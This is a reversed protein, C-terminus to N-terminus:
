PGPEIRDWPMIVSLATMAIRGSFCHDVDSGSRRPRDAYRGAYRAEGSEIGYSVALPSPDNPCEVFPPETEGDDLHPFNVNWFSGVPLPQSRARDLTRVAQRAAWDWDITKGSAIYHSLAIAPLGWIAAERAAAVTGSIHIDVGLNGGPNIGSLVWADRLDLVHVAVRICDAPSGHIAFRRPGREEIRIPAHTTVQHGCGSCQAAPAIVWIEGRDGIARELAELGPAGYGDDNTLVLQGWDGSSTAMAMTAGM